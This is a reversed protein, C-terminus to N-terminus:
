ISASPKEQSNIERYFFNVASLFYIVATETRLVLPGLTVPVAGSLIASEAEKETFDGEPGILALIRGGKSETLAAYLSQAPVALTPLLINDYNNPDSLTKKIDRVETIEPVASLGCQKCSEAAIRRWRKIKEEWREKSLKIICRESHLPIIKHVGLECAKQIALEMREPKIVSVAITIQSRQVMEMSSGKFPDLKVRLRGDAIGSVVGRFSRGKGDMVCVADGAKLRLVSIAHHSEKEDLFVLDNKILTPDIQFRHM